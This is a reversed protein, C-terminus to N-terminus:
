REDTNVRNGSGIVQANSSGNAIMKNDQFEDRMKKIDNQNRLGIITAVISLLSALVGLVLNVTEM